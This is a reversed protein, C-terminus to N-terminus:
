IKTFHKQGSSMSNFDCGYIRAVIVVIIKKHM